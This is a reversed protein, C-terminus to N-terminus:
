LVPLGEAADVEAHAIIRHVLSIDLAEDMAHPLFPV